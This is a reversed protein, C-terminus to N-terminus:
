SGQKVDFYGNINNIFDNDPAYAARNRGGVMFRNIVIVLLSIFGM